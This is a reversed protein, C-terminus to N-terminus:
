HVERLEDVRVTKSEVPVKDEPHVTATKTTSDVSDIWVKEGNLVVDIKDIAEIIEQARNVDM